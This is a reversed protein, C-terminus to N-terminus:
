EWPPPALPSGTIAHAERAVGYIGFCDSRNPTVELELVSENMPLIEAAPTGPAVDAELVLIGDTREGIGIEDPGCIMGESVVGRLTAQGIETGDPMVAGPLAVVVTQEDAVNPAGCVITRVGSGDDVQCVRLRDADPHPEVSVTRGIVFHSTDTIAPRAVREVETGTMAMREALEAPDLGTECYESMWSWPVRM